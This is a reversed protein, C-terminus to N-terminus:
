RQQPGTPTRGTRGNGHGGGPSVWGLVRAGLLVGAVIQGVIGPQRIREFAEDLLKASGFVLLMALPVKLQESATSTLLAYCAVTGQHM